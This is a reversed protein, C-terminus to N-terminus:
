GPRRAPRNRLFEGAMEQWSAPALDPFTTAIRAASLASSAPRPAPLLFRSAPVPRFEKAQFVEGGERAKELLFKGFDYRSARGTAAWHYLGAARRAALAWLARSLPRAYTPSGRQDSALEVVDKTAAWELVKQPFGRAPWDGYLWSTRVVLALAGSELVAREGALKTRAYAGLPAPADDEVYASGKRGDFVYDTSVHVLLVKRERCLRALLAPGEANARAAVAPYKEAGDVDTYAAANFLVEPTSEDLIRGAAGADAIDLRDHPLAVVHAGAPAELVLARGLAGGAGTILARM